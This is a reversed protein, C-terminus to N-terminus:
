DHARKQELFAKTKQWYHQVKPNKVQSLKGDLREIVASFLNQTEKNYLIRLWYFLLFLTLQFGASRRFLLTRLLLYVILVLEDYAIISALLGSEKLVPEINKQKALHLLSILFFPIIKFISKFTFLWVVALILYQFNQYSILTSTSPLYHLGFKHSFTATLAAISGALALRYSISNIYYKNPLWLVQFLLSITGFVLTSAHGAQWILFKLKNPQAVKKVLKKRKITTTGSVDHTPETSPIGSDTSLPQQVATSSM